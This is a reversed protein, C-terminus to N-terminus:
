DTIPATLGHVVDVVDLVLGDDRLEQGGVPRVPEAAHGVGAERGVREGLGAVASVLGEPAVAATPGVSVVVSPGAPDVTSFSSVEPPRSSAPCKASGRLAGPLQTGASTIQWPNGAPRLAPRREAEDNGSSASRM